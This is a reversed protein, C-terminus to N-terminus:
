IGSFLAPVRKDDRVLSLFVDVLWPDFQTGSKSEIYRMADAPPWASKYQRVSCLATFVDSIAVYQVYYPLEDASKGWYGGGNFWEHHYLCCQRAMIGLEGNLSALIEAGLVTHTKIIEFERGDLKGPKNLISVPIKRKGVDHLVAATRIQRATSTSAGCQTAIIEALQGVTRNENSSITAV